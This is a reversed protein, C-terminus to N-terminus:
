SLRAILTAGSRAARTRRGKASLTTATASMAEQNSYRYFVLGEDKFYVKMSKSVGAEVLRSSVWKEAEEQNAAGSLGGVAAMTNVSAAKM